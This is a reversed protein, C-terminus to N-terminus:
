SDRIGHEGSRAVTFKEKLRDTWKQKTFLNTEHQKLNQMYPIDYFVDAKDSQSWAIHYDSPGDINSCIANIREKQYSFPRNWPIHQLNEHTLHTSKPPLFTRAASSQAPCAGLEPGQPLHEGGTGRVHHYRSLPFCPASERVARTSRGCLPPRAHNCCDIDLLMSTHTHYKVATIHWPIYVIHIYINNFTKNFYLTHYLAKKRAFRFM